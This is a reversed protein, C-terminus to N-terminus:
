KSIIKVEVRQNRARGVTTENSAIPHKKGYGKFSLQEKNVGNEVLFKYVQRARKRSLDDCYDDEPINNTHGGLEVVFNPNRKLFAGLEKLVGYSSKNITSTDAQFYLNRIRINDGKKLKEPNRLEKMITPEKYEEVPKTYVVPETPEVPKEELPTEPEKKVVVPEEPEPDKNGNLIEKTDCDIEIFNSAEDILIHGNYPFYTPTKYFAEYTIYNIETKPRIEFEYKIWDSNEIPTSEALLQGQGCYVRGGWLRFVAPTVYNEIDDSRNGNLDKTGSWYDDSRAIFINFSYCQGKKLTVDLGQSISEYTENERVVLGVYSKGQAPKLNVKWFDNPHIDPPTEGKFKNKGCDLWGDVSRTTATGRRPTDELGNNFIIVDQATINLALLSLVLTTYFSRTFNTRMM